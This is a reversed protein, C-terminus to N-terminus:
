CTHLRKRVARSQEWDEGYAGPTMNSSNFSKDRYDGECGEEACLIGEQVWGHERFHTCSQLCSHTGQTCRSSGLSEQSKMFFAAKVFQIKAECECYFGSRIFGYLYTLDTRFLTGFVLSSCDQFTSLMIFIYYGLMSYISYLTECLHMLIWVRWSKWVYPM